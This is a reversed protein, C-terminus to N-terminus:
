DESERNLKFTYFDFLGTYEKYPRYLWSDRSGDIYDAPFDISRIMSVIGGQSVENWSEVPRTFCKKNSKFRGM